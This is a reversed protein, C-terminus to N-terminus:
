GVVAGSLRLHLVWQMALCAIHTCTCQWTLGADTDADAKAGSVVRGLTSGGTGCLGDVRKVPITVVTLALVVVLALALALALSWTRVNQTLLKRGRPQQQQPSHVSKYWM